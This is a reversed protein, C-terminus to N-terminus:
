LCGTCGYFGDKPPQEVELGGCHPEPLYGTAPKPLQQICEESCAHVLLPLVDTAVRLSVWVQKPGAIKVPGRCVSYSQPVIDVDNSPLRPFPPRYKFNGYLARTSVRSLRLKPCRTIEYPFWHLRYSTYPDFEELSALEGIEAPIRVLPSGYLAFYKVSQLKAISPPLTTIQQWLGPGIGRGPNFEDSGDAALKEIYSELSRWAESATDVPESHLRVEQWRGLKSHYFYDVCNCTSYRRVPNARLQSDPTAARQDFRPYLLKIEKKDM